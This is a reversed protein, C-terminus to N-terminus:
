EDPFNMDSNQHVPLVPVPKEAFLQAKEEWHSAAPLLVM